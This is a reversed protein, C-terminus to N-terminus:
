FRLTAGFVKQDARLEFYPEISWSRKADDVRQNYKTIALPTGIISTLWAGAALVAGVFVMTRKGPNVNQTTPLDSGCGMPGVPEGTSPCINRTDLGGGTLGVVLLGVGIAEVALTTWGLVPKGAYILGAGLAGLAFGVGQSKREAVIARSQDSQPLAARLDSDSMGLKRLSSIAGLRVQDAKDSLSAKLAPIAGKDGVDALSKAAQARVAVDQDKLAQQLATSSSKQATRGLAWAAMYRVGADSDSVVAKQLANTAAPGTSGITGLAWAAKNRVTHATDSGLTKALVDSAQDERQKGLTEAAWVRDRADQASLIKVLDEFKRKALQASADPLAAALCIAFVAALSSVQRLPM